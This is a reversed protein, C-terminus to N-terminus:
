RGASAGRAVEERQGAYTSAIYAILKGCQEGITTRPLWRAERCEIREQGQIIRAEIAGQSKRHAVSAELAAVEEVLDFL